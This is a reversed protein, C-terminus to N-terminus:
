NTIEKGAAFNIYNVSQYYFSKVELFQMRAEIFSRQFDIFQLLSINKRQFNELANKSLEDIDTIFQQSYNSLNKKNNLYLVYASFVENEMAFKMIEFETKSQEVEIRAVNIGAQNRNFIPLSMEFVMGTYPRVYNSGKDHPQYGLNIDPVSESKQTKLSQEYLKINKQAIQFDPRNTKAIELVNAADLTDKDSIKREETQIITSAPLNLLTNLASQEQVIENENQMAETQISIYESKLRVLDNFSIVGLEYQKQTSLILNNYKDLIIQYIENKEKLLHLNSYLNSYELILGRLVDSFALKAIEISLKAERIANVRKGSVSIVYEIQILKQNAFNFYKNQEVSYMDANWVFLPNNWTKAAILEAEALNVNYYEALVKLCEKLLKDKGQEYSLKLENGFGSKPIILIALSFVILYLSKLNKM